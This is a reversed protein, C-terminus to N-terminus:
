EVVTELLKALREARDGVQRFYRKNTRFQAAASKYQKAEILKLTQKWKRLGDLGLNFCLNALFLQVKEPRERWWPILRDLGKFVEDIDYDLLLDIIHDPLGNDSLNHGVGITIKGVTDEYPLRIRDEDRELDKKLQDRM